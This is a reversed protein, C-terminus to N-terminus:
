CCPSSSATAVMAASSSAGGTSAGHVTDREFSARLAAGGLSSEPLKDKERSIGQSSDGVHRRWSTTGQQSL